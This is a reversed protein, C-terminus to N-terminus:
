PGALHENLFSAIRSYAGRRAAYTLMRNSRSTSEEHVEHAIKANKMERVFDRAQGSMNEGFQVGEVMLLPTDLRTVLYRPSIERFAEDDAEAGALQASYRERAGGLPLFRRVAAMDYTGSITVACRFLSPRRMAALLAVYAGSKHGVICVREKDAHGAEVVYEVAARIDAPLVDAVRGLAADHFDRGFGLTGRANVELVGFGLSAFLQSTDSYGWTAPLGFPGSAVVVFPVPKGPAYDAPVTVYGTTRTRGAGQFEIPHRAGPRELAPARRFLTSLKTEGLTALYYTGPDSDSRVEVVAQATDRSFSVIEVNMNKFAATAFRHLVAAPHDPDPYHFQPFHDDYRIAYLSRQGDLYTATVDTRGPRYAAEITGDSLDLVGLGVLPGTVNELVYLKGETPGAAVLDIDHDDLHGALAVKFEEGPSRRYWLQVQDKFTTSSSPPHGWAALVNGERDAYTDFVDGEVTALRETRNRRTDYRSIWSSRDDPFIVLADNADDAFANAVLPEIFSPFRAKGILRRMSLPRRPSNVFLRDSKKQEIDYRFWMMDPPLDFWFPDGRYAQILVTSDDAWAHEGIGLGEELTFAAVSESTALAYVDILPRDQEIRRVAVHKGDPSLRPNEFQPIIFPAVDFAGQEGLVQEGASQDAAAVSLTALGAFLWAIPRSACM